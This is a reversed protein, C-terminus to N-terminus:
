FDLIVVELLLQFLEAMLHPFAFNFILLVGLEEIHEVLFHFFNLLNNLLIIPLLSLIHLGKVFIQNLKLVFISLLFPNPKIFLAYPKTSQLGLPRSSPNSLDPFFSFGEPLDVIPELLDGYLLLIDLLELLTTFSTLYCLCVSLKWHDRVSKPEILL